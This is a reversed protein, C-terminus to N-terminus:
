VGRRTLSGMLGDVALRTEGGVSVFKYATRSGSLKSLVECVSENM